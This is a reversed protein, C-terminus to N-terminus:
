RAPADETETITIRRVKVGDDPTTTVENEPKVTVEDDNDSCATLGSLMMGGLM